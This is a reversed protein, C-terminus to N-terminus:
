TPHLVHIVYELVWVNERACVYVHLFEAISATKFM